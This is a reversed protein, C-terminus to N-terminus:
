RRAGKKTVANLGAGVISRIDIPEGLTVQELLERMAANTAEAYIIDVSGVPRGDRFITQHQHLVTSQDKSKSRLRRALPTLKGAKTLLADRAANIGAM